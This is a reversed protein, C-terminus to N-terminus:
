TNAIFKKKRELYNEGRFKEGFFLFSEESHCGQAGPRARPLPRLVSSSRSSCFLQYFHSGCDLVFRIKVFAVL